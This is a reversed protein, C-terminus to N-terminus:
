TNLHEKVRNSHKNEKGTDLIENRADKIISAM